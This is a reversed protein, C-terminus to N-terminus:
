NRETITALEAQFHGAQNLNLRRSSLGREM